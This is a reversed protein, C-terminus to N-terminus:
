DLNKKQFFKKKFPNSWNEVIFFLKSFWFKSINSSTAWLKPLGSLSMLWSFISLKVLHMHPKMGLDFFFKQCYRICEIYSGITHAMVCLGIWEDLWLISTHLTYRCSAVLTHRSSLCLGFKRQRLKPSSALTTTDYFNDWWRYEQCWAVCKFIDM